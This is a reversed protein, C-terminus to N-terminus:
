GSNRRLRSVEASECLKEQLFEQVRRKEAVDGSERQINRLVDAWSPRSDIRFRRSRKNKDPLITTFM